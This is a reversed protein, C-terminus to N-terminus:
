IYNAPIFSYAKKIQNITIKYYTIFSKNLYM